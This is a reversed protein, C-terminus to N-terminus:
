VGNHFKVVVNEDPGCIATWKYEPDRIRERVTEFGEFVLNEGDLNFMVLYELDDYKSKRILTDRMLNATIKIVCADKHPAEEVDPVAARWHLQLPKFEVIPEVKKACSVFAACFFLVLCLVLGNRSRM